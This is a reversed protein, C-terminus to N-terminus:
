ESLSKLFSLSKESPLTFKDQGPWGVYRESTPWSLTNVSRNCFIELSVSLNVVLFSREFIPRIDVDFRLDLRLVATADNRRPKM